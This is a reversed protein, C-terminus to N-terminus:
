SEVIRLVAWEADSCGACSPTIDSPIDDLAFALVVFLLAIAAKMRNFSLFLVVLIWRVFLSVFRLSISCKTENIGKEGRKRSGKKCMLFSHRAMCIPMSSSLQIPKRFSLLNTGGIEGICSSSAFSAATMRSKFKSDVGQPFLYVFLGDSLTNFGSRASARRRQVFFSSSHCSPLLFLFHVFSIITCASRQFSSRGSMTLSALYFLNSSDYADCVFSPLDLCSRGPYGRKDVSDSVNAEEKVDSAGGVSLLIPM